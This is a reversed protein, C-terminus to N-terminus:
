LLAAQHSYFSIAPGVAASLYHQQQKRERGKVINGQLLMLLHFSRVNTSVDDHEDMVGWVSVWRIASSIMGGLVHNEM